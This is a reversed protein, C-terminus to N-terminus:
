EGREVPGPPLEDGVPPRSVYKNSQHGEAAAMIHGDCVRRGNETVTAPDSCYYCQNDDSTTM